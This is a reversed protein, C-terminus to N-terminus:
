QGKAWALGDTGAGTDILKSVTWAQLDIVAIQKSADCSVYAEGGDPRVLTEQPARPVDLSRFVSMTQLDVVAVKREKPIAILLWRGDPTAAAGYGTGPLPIWNSVQNQATDIVALRPQDQDSTFVWRDDVSLAIRQATRCVPIITIVKRAEMDLVSVTGPAVNATYGRRGDSTIALMHSEPQGTPIAGVVKLTEPDIVTITRDLETTVYLLGDKPGIVACHPRLGKGLDITGTIQRTALDIVRVLRGDTGPKGVGSNGYIPVFARKGDPSAVVEHGTVGDEPVVALQRGAVTDVIGLTQEGKNCVLLFGAANLRPAVLLATVSLIISFTRNM